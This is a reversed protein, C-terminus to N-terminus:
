AKLLWGKPFKLKGLCTPCPIELSIPIASHLNFIAGCHPCELTRDPEKYCHIPHSIKRNYDGFVGRAFAFSERDTRKMGGVVYNNLYPVPFNINSERCWVWVDIGLQCAVGVEFAIWNQTFKWEEKAKSDTETKSQMEVLNEGVL